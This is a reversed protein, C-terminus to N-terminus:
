DKPDYTVMKDGGSGLVFDKDKYFLASQIELRALGALLFILMAFRFPSIQIGFQSNLIPVESNATRLEYNAILFRPLLYLLLYIASLLAPMALFVGFQSLRPNFGLKALMAFSFVLWIIGFDSTRLGLDSKRRKERWWLIAAMIVLLPLM